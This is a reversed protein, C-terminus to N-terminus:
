GNTSTAPPPTPVPAATSPAAAGADAPPPTVPIDYVLEYRDAPYTIDLTEVPLDGAYHTQEIAFVVAGRAALHLSNAEDRTAARITVQEVRHDATPTEGTLPKWSRSIEIPRQQAFRLWTTESVPTGPRIGLRRAVDLTAEVIVPEGDHPPPPRRSDRTIKRRVTVVTGSGRKAVALGEHQIMALAERATNRAVAYRHILQNESPLCSGEPFYGSEIAARLDAAIEEYRYPAVLV